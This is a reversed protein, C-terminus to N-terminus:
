EKIFPLNVVKSNNIFQILYLGKSLKENLVVTSQGKTIKGSILNSGVSNTIIYDFSEESQINIYDKVPNPYLMITGENSANSISSPLTITYTTEASKKNCMAMSLNSVAVSYSGNATATYTKANAGAILTAGNYWQYTVNDLSCTFVNGVLSITPVAPVEFSTISVTDTKRPCTFNDQYTVSIIGTSKQVISQSSAGTSWLYSSGSPSTLTVSDGTCFSKNGAVTMPVISTNCFGNGTVDYKFLEANPDNSYIMVNSNYAIADAATMKVQLSYSSNANVTIPTSVGVLSFASAGNLKISDVKLAVTGKNEILFSKTTNTTKDISGFNTNDATIPTIDKNPIQIMNGSVKMQVLYKATDLTKYLLIQGEEVLEGSIPKHIQDVLLYNGAGLFDQVDIIGSSEEDQTLYNASVGSVFRTSDHTGVLMISDTALHYQWIKALHVNSGPDEQIFARGRNDVCMNDMMKQGETGDLVATIRGGLTPNKIDDFRLRYMRSPTTNPTSFGNTTVFYFDNPVLPDWAGDEPRLFRTVGKSTSLTELAAGTMSSVDGLPELSFRTNPAIMSGSVETALGTVKVGYKLGNQLGAKEIETGTSTKAGIYVYVQGPTADDTGIVVTSDGSSPCAMANEWSYRGLYPLQYSTGANTGTVIHAFARGEAGSEEGNLFIREQTGKGSVANYFASVPALDASCFRSIALTSAAPAASDYQTFSSGNWLNLKRILDSGSLVSLDSKNIIWKSIFAGTNGHKRVIGATNVLEHAVLMTFTGDGNDYAGAGDPIGVMRYGNLASDGVSIISTFNANTTTPLLYPAQNSNLGTKGQLLNIRAPVFNQLKNAGALKYEIVHCSNGSATVTGNNPTSNGGFDNDNGIYITSDNIIALGEAKDLAAPWGNALLDMVLTKTVPKINNATLGNMGVLAELTVGGYLGSHVATAQAINIQYMRKIDSTGRAAAELVLFVSDNVAALDGIKWDRLRIANSGSGIISDNLYVLMRQANTVPDIELIRHIRTGEGVTTTPYLLPSQIIAYIKGNPTITIGEFGRNNKRYSFVTDIPIDVSQMGGKNGYPTYRAIVKGNPNLKWVTPGGEECLWFNGDRDVVIGEADIGFTDKPAQKAAFNACDSVTDTSAVEAATSGLGTPNMIGTVNTNNPRKITISRLIQVSDGKIRIRHIKPAYNPFAYIKDYTPPCPAGTASSNTSSGADVNVGRDGVTWFEKGDTGEIPYLGSFGGERFNIGQFTGIPASKYNQYDTQKTIQSDLQISSWITMILIIYLNKKM